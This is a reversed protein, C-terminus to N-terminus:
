DDLEWIDSELQFKGHGAGSSAGYKLIGCHWLMQKLQYVSTSKIDSAELNKELKEPDHLFLNAALSYNYLKLNQIFDFINLRDKNQLLCTFIQNCFETRLFAHKIILSLPYNVIKLRQRRNITSFDINLYDIWDSVMMGNITLQQEANILGLSIAGKIAM